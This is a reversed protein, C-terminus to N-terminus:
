AFYCLSPSCFYCTFKLRIVRAFISIHSSIEFIKQDNNAKQELTSVSEASEFSKKMNFRSIM